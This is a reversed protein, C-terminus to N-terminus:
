TRAPQVNSKPPSPRLRSPRAARMPSACPDRRDRESAVRRCSPLPAPNRRLRAGGPPDPRCARWAHFLRHKRARCLLAVGQYSCYRHTSRRDARRAESQLSGDLAPKPLDWAVLQRAAPRIEGTDRTESSPKTIRKVLSITSEKWVTLDASTSNPGPSFTKYPGFSMPLDV